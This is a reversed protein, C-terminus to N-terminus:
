FKDSKRLNDKARIVQLNWPLHLGCVNKGQLPIIHDVHWQEGSRETFNAATFYLAEIWDHEEATLWKPTARLKAARRKATRANEKEPNALRYKKVARKNITKFKDTKQYEKQYAKHAVTQRYKKQYEETCVKCKPQLGDKRTKNKSFEAVPKFEKCTCCRKM